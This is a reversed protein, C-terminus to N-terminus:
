YLCQKEAFRQTSIYLAQSQHFDEKGRKKEAKYQRRCKDVHEDSLMRAFPAFTELLLRQQRQLFIESVLCCYFRLRSGM